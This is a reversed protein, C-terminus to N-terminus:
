PKRGLMKITEALFPDLECAHIACPALRKSKTGTPAREIGARPPQETKDVLPWHTVTSLGPPLFMPHDFWPHIFCGYVLYGSTLNMYSGQVTEKFYYKFM